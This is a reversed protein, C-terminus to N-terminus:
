YLRLRWKLLLLSCASDALLLLFLAIFSSCFGSNIVVIFASASDALLLPFLAIFCASVAM